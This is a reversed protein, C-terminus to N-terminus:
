AGEEPYEYSLVGISFPRYIDGMDYGEEEKMRSIEKLAKFIINWDKTM